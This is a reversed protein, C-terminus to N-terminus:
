ISISKRKAFSSCVRGIYERVKKADDSRFLHWLAGPREGNRLRQLQAEDINSDLIEAEVEVFVWFEIEDFFENEKRQKRRIEEDKDSGDVGYGGIGVYVLVNVADSVDIHLNTTGAKRTAQSTLQSYAIYLKPGLDPKVLCAPLREVINM